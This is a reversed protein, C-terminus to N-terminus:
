QLGHQQHAVLATEVTENWEDANVPMRGSFDWGLVADEAAILRAYGESRVVALNLSRLQPSMDREANELTMRRSTTASVFATHEGRTMTGRIFALSLLAHERSLHESASLYMALSRIMRFSPVDTLADSGITQLDGLR